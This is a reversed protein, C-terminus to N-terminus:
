SCLATQDRVFPPASQVSVVDSVGCHRRGHPASANRCLAPPPQVGPHRALGRLRDDWAAPDDRWDFRSDPEPGQVIALKWGANPFLRGIAARLAAIEPLSAPFKIPEFVFLIREGPRDLALLKNVLYATRRRPGELHQLFDDVVPGGEIEWNRPFEHHLPDTGDIRPPAGSAAGETLELKAPDYISGVDLSANFVRAVSGMPTFWWDLPFASRFNFIPARQLDDLVPAGLSVIETYALDGAETSLEM